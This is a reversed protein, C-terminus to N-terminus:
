KKGMVKKLQGAMTDIERLSKELREMPALDKKLTLKAPDFGTPYPALVKRWVMAAKQVAVIDRYAQGGRTRMKPLNKKLEAMKRKEEPTFPVEDKATDQMDELLDRLKRVQTLLGKLTKQYDDCAKLLEKAATSAESASDKGQSHLKCLNTYDRLFQTREKTEEALAETLEDAKEDLDKAAEINASPERDGMAALIQIEAALEIGSFFATVAARRQADKLPPIDKALRNLESDLVKNATTQTRDIQIKCLKTAVEALAEVKGMAAPDSKAKNSAARLQAELDALVKNVTEQHGRVAPILARDVKIVIADIQAQPLEEPAKVEIEYTVEIWFHDIEVLSEDLKVQFFPDFFLSLEKKNNNKKRNRIIKTIKDAVKAVKRDAASGSIFTGIHLRGNVRCLITLKVSLTAGLHTKGRTHAIHDQLIGGM